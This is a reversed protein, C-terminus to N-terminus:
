VWAAEAASRRQDRHSAALVRWFVCDDGQRLTWLGAPLALAPVGMALGNWPWSLIVALLLASVGVLGAVASPLPLGLVRPLALRRNFATM